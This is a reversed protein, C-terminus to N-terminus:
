FVISAYGRLELDIARPYAGAVTKVGPLLDEETWGYQEMTRACMELSIGSDILKQIIVKNPNRQGNKGFVGYAKDKLTWYGADGHFVANIHVRTRPIGISKYDEVLRNIRALGAGIGDEWEDHEIRCVISVDDGVGIPRSAMDPTVWGWTRFINAAEPSQLFEFFQRASMKEKGRETLAIHCQRYIQYDESVHIHEAHDRVPMYWISWTLWADIDERERWMTRAEDASKAFVVVNNRFSRLARVSALKDAMDEWPGSKGSGAVVMVRVGPRLLDPFDHIQKPNTPRVLISCPRLYLPTITADDLQLGGQRVFDAMMFETTAFVLDADRKAKTLWQSLARSSVEVRVNNPDTFAMAAEKFAPSPGMPGYVYVVEQGCVEGATLGVLPLL